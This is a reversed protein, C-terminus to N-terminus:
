GGGAEGTGRAVEGLRRDIDAAQDVIEEAASVRQEVDLDTLSDAQERLSQLAARLSRAPDQESSELDPGPDADPQRDDDLDSIM